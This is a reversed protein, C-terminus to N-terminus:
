LRGHTAEKKTIKKSSITRHVLEALLEADAKRRRERIVLALETLKLALIVLNITVIKKRTEPSLDHRCPM